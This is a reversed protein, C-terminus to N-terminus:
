NSRWPFTTSVDTHNRHGSSHLSDDHGMAGCEAGRKKRRRSGEGKSDQVFHVVLSSCGELVELNPTACCCPHDRHDTWHRRLGLQHRRERRKRCEATSVLAALVVVKMIKTAQHLKVEEEEKKKEEEKKREQHRRLRKKPSRMRRSRQLKWEWSSRSISSEPGLSPSPALTLSWIKERKISFPGLEMKFRRDLPLLVYGWIALAGVEEKKPWSLWRPKPTLGYEGSSWMLSRNPWSTFPSVEWCRKLSRWCKLNQLPNPWWPSNGQDGYSQIGTSSSWLHETLYVEKPHSLPMQLPTWSRRTWIRKVFCSDMELRQSCTALSRTMSKLWWIPAKWLWLAWSPQRMCWNPDREPLSGSCKELRNKLWVSQNRLREMKPNKQRPSHEPSQSRGPISKRDENHALLDKIYSEQTIFWEDVGEKTTSRSVEMGLFRMIRLFRNQNRPRGNPDCRSCLWLCCRLTLYWLSTMWTRCWCDGCHRLLPRTLLSRWSRGSIRKQSFSNWICFRWVQQPRGNLEFKKSLTMVASEGCDLHGVFDMFRRSPFSTSMHSWTGRKWLSPPHRSWSPPTERRSTWTQTSFPRELMLQHVKGNPTLQLSSLLETRRRKKRRLKRLRGM